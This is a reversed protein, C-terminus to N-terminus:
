DPRVSVFCFSRRCRRVQPQHDADRQAHRRACHYGQSWHIQRRSQSRPAPHSRHYLLNTTDIPAALFPVPTSRPRQPQPPAALFAPAVTRRPFAPHPRQRLSNDSPCRFSRVSAAGPLMFSLLAVSEPQGSTRCLRRFQERRASKSLAMSVAKLQCLAAADVEQLVAELVDEAALM